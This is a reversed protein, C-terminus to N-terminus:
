PLLLDVELSGDDERSMQDSPYLSTTNSYPSGTNATALHFAHVAQRFHTDVQTKQNATQSSYSTNTSFIAMLQYLLADVVGAVERVAAPIRFEAQKDLVILVPASETVSDMLEFLGNSYAEYILQQDAQDTVVSSRIMVSINSLCSDSIDNFEDLIDQFPGPNRKQAVVNVLDKLDFAMRALSHCAVAIETPSMAASAPAVAMLLGMLVALLAWFSRGLRASLHFLM